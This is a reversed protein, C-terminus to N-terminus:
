AVADRHPEAPAVAAAAERSREWRCVLGDEPDVVEGVRVFDCKALVRDSAGSGPQTHARVLRVADDALAFAVLARAAETAYGRGRHQPEVGYAIEVVGDADPPGKFGCSGVTAGDAREVMAFGHTWPDSTASARLRALWDPSVQARDAPAMAEIRALLAETSELVLELRETPVVRDTM